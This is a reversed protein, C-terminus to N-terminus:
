GPAVALWAGPLPAQARPAEGGVAQQFGQVQLRQVGLEVGM